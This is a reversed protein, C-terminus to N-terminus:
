LIDLSASAQSTHISSFSCHSFLISIGSFSSSRSTMCCLYSGLTRYAQKYKYMDRLVTNLHVTEKAPKLTQLWLHVVLCRTNGHHVLDGPLQNVTTVWTLFVDLALLVFEVVPVFLYVM